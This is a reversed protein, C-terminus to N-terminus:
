LPNDIGDGPAAHMRAALWKNNVSAAIEDASMAPEESPLAATAAVNTV